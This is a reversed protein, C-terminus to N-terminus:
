FMRREGAIEARRGIAALSREHDLATRISEVTEMRTLRSLAGRPIGFRRAGLEVLQKKLFKRDDLIKDVDEPALTQLNEPLEAAPKRAKRQCPTPDDSVASALTLEAISRTPYPKLLEALDRLAKGLEPNGTRGNKQLNAVGYLYRVIDRVLLRNVNSDVEGSPNRPARETNM